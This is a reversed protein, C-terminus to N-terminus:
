NSHCALHYMFAWLMTIEVWLLNLLSAPSNACEIKASSNVCRRKKTFSLALGIKTPVVSFLLDRVMIFLIFLEDAAFIPSAGYVSTFVMNFHIDPFKPARLIYTMCLQGNSSFNCALKASIKVSIDYIYQVEHRHMSIIMEHHSLQAFSHEM